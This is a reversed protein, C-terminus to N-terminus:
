SRAPPSVASHYYAFWAGRRLSALPTITSHRFTYSDAKICVSHKYGAELILGFVALSHKIKIECQEAWHKTCQETEQEDVVFHNGSWVVGCVAVWFLAMLCSLAAIGRFKLLRM